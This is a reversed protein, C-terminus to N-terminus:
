YGPNQPELNPNRLIEDAPLPFLYDKASSFTQNELGTPGFVEDGIQLRKIDYWRKFEFALELRREEIISDRTQEQGLGAALDPPYTGGNRARERVRNLFGVAEASGANLENAAEAAILLVEAYRMLPYNYVSARGNGEGTNDSTLSRTYKAIYASQINRSDYIPFNMFTDEVGGFIGVTDLSVAKRYDRGDWSNYVNVTPVAVSWGGGINGRENKRIGTLAPMFDRQYNGSRLGNFDLTLLPEKADATGHLDAEFLDQFDATLALDFTGEGDIVFKAENYAAQYNGRTLYVSALYAAATAKSPLARSSAVDPLNAKAFELDAIINAYVEDESSKSIQLAADM